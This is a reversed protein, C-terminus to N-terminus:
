LLSCPSFFEPIIGRYAHRFYEAVFVRRLIETFSIASNNGIKERRTIREFMQILDLYYLIKEIICYSRARQGNDTVFTCLASETNSLKYAVRANSIAMNQKSKEIKWKKIVFISYRSNLSHM